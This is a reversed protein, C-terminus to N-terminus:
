MHKDHIRMAMELVPKAWQPTEAPDCSDVIQGERFHLILKPQPEYGKSPDADFSNDYLLLEALKPLLHLLNERARTFRERIKAEPIDHGGKAVRSRVREIHQEPTSLSVFWIKIQLGSDAASELLSPITNGGLTTEFAFNKKERVVRELLNRGLKWALSNAEELSIGPDKAKIRKAEIDPNFYDTGEQLLMAGMISSKGGGNPGALVYICRDQNSIAPNV